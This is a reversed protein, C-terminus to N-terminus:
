QDAGLDAHIPVGRSVEYLTIKPELELVKAHKGDSGFVLYGKRRESGGMLSALSGHSKTEVSLTFNCVRASLTGELTFVKTGTPKSRAPDPTVALALGSPYIPTQATGKLLDGAIKLDITAFPFTWRGAIDTKDTALSAEGMAAFFSRKEVTGQLLEEYKKDEEQRRRGVAALADTVMADPDGEKMAHNVIAKAEDAAGADLLRFALNGAALTNGLKIAAKYHEVSSIPLGLPGLITALNNMAGDMERQELVVHYHYIAIEEFGSETYDYALKFRLDSQAGNRRLSYEGIAFSDYKKGASKFNEYLKSMVELRQKPTALRFAEVLLDKASAVDKAETWCEAADVLFDVKKDPTAKAAARQFAEAAGAPDGLQRLGHGISAPVTPSDPNETELSKLDDLGEPYGHRARQQHYFTTFFLGKTPDGDQIHELGARYAKQAADPDSRELGDLIETIYSSLDPKDPKPEQQAPAEAPPAQAEQRLSPESRLQLSSAIIKTVVENTRKFAEDRKAPDYVIYELDGQLKPLEVDPEVFFILKRGRGLAYGSEQLVWSPATWGTPRPSAGHIAAAQEIIPYKQTFMGIFVAAGEILKQIKESVETAEAPKASECYFGLSEFTKLHDLLPRLKEEDGDAFSRAIFAKVIEAV